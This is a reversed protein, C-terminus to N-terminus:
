YTSSLPPPTARSTPPVIGNLRLYITMQGYHDAAHWIIVTALNLRTTPGAYPGEIPDFMNKATIADLSHKAAAFSDRLYTLLEARSKAPSPGGKDCAPPPEKGDLEDAFAFNSCAIHKVLEAFTRVDGPGFPAKAGKFLGEAARFNYKDAPMAEAASRVEYEQSEFQRLLASAVTEKKSIEAATPEQQPPPTQQSRCLRPSVLLLASLSLFTGFRSFRAAPRM